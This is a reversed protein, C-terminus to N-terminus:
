MGGGMVLKGRFKAYTAYDITTTQELMASLSEGPGREVDQIRKTVTLDFADSGAGSGYGCMFVRDGPRAHDLINVLGLLVAGSYTNGIEPALLGLRWQEETFGLKKAAAVPFKGNPQHFVCHEYDKPRTGAETM